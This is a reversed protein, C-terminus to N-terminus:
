EPGVDCLVRREAQDEMSAEQYGVRRGIGAFQMLAPDVERGFVWEQGRLETAIDFAREVNSAPWNLHMGTFWQEEIERITLSM